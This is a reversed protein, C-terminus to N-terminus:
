VHGPRAGYAVHALRLLGAPSAHHEFTRATGAEELREIEIEGPAVAGYAADLFIVSGASAIGSRWNRCPRTCPWPRLDARQGATGGGGTRRCRRRAHPQRYGVILLKESM